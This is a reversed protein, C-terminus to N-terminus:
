FQFLKKKVIFTDYLYNEEVQYKKLSELVKLEADYESFKSSYSKIKFSFKETQGKSLVVLNKFKIKFLQPKLGYSVKEEKSCYIEDHECSRNHITSRYENHVSPKCGEIIDREPCYYETTTFQGCSPHPGTVTKIAKEVCKTEFEELEISLQVEAPSHETRVLVVEQETLNIVPQELIVDAIAPFTLFAFATILLKM